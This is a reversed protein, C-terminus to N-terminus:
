VIWNKCLSSFGIGLLILIGYVVVWREYQRETMAKKDRSGNPDDHNSAYGLSWFFIWAIIIFSFGSIITIVLAGAFIVIKLLWEYKGDQDEPISDFLSKSFKGGDIKGYPILNFYILSGNLCAFKLFLDWNLINQSALIFAIFVGFVNGIVGALSVAASTSWDMRRYKEEYDKQPGVGGVVVLFFMWTKIGNNELVIMHGIEHVVLSVILAWAIFDPNKSGFLSAIAYFAYWNGIATSVALVLSWFRNIKM